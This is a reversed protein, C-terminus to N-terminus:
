TTGVKVELHFLVDVTPFTTAEVVYIQLSSPLLKQQYGTGNDANFVRNTDTDALQASPQQQWQLWEQSSQKVVTFM